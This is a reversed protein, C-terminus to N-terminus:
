STDAKLMKEDDEKESPLGYFALCTNDIYHIYQEVHIFVYHAVIIGTVLDICYHGRTAIMTFAEILVTLLSFMFMRPMGMRNFELGIIVPLGVHGSFFFDNTKLYSVAIAPFGPDDWLYGDPYKM